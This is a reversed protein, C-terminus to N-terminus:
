KVTEFDYEMGDYAVIHPFHFKINEEELERVRDPYVHSFIMLKTRSGNLVDYVNKVHPTHTLESVILDFDKQRTIEPYDRFDGYALDGTFLVRKGEAELMYAYSYEIHRTRIASVKLGYKDFIIGEHTVNVVPSKNDSMNMHMACLWDTYPAVAAEEPLFLDATDDDKKFTRFAKIVAAISNVHDAHMHTIFIGRLKEPPMNRQKMLYEVPAGADILYYYSGIELIISSCHRGIETYGHSTGLFIVKM